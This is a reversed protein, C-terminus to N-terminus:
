KDLWVSLFVELLTPSPVFGKVYNAAATPTKGSALPVTPHRGPDPGPGEGVRGAPRAEDTAALADLMAQNMADNKYAFEPNPGVPDGRYGFYGHVPLQRHGALRLELRDAVDPLQRRSPPSTTRAGPPPRPTPSSASPRSIALIAEFEGKPDPM